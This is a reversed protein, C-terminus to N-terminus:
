VKNQLVSVSGSKVALIIDDITMGTEAAAKQLEILRENNKILYYRDLEADSKKIKEDLEKRREKLEKNKSEEKTIKEDLSMAM